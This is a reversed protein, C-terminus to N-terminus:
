WTVSSMGIGTHKYKYKYKHIQWIHGEGMHCGTRGGISYPRGWIGGVVVGTKLLEGSRVTSFLSEQSIPFTIVPVLGLLPFTVLGWCLSVPTEVNWAQRQIFKNRISLWFLKLIHGVYLDLHFTATNRLFSWQSSTARMITNTVQSVRTIHSVRQCNFHTFQHQDFGCFMQLKFMVTPVNGSIAKTVYSSAAPLVTLIPKNTAPLLIPAVKSKILRRMGM